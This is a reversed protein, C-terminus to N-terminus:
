GTQPKDVCSRWNSMVLLSTPSYRSKAGVAQVFDEIFPFLSYFNLSLFDAALRALFYEMQTWVTRSM